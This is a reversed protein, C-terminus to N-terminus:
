RGPVGTLVRAVDHINETDLLAEAATRIVFDAELDVGYCGAYIDFWDNMAGELAHYQDPPFHLMHDGTRAEVYLAVAPGAGETLYTMAEDPNPPDSPPDFAAVDRDARERLDWIREEFREPPPPDSM